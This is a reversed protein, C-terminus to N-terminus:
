GESDRTKSPDKYQPHTPAEEEGKPEGKEAESVLEPNVYQPHSTKDDQTIFKEEEPVISPDIFQPHNKKKAAEIKAEAEPDRNLILKVAVSYFNSREDQIVRVVEGFITKGKVFIEDPDISNTLGEQKLYEKLQAIDLNLSVLAKPPPPYKTNFLIGNQSINSANADVIQNAFKEYCHKYTISRQFPIRVYRRKEKDESAM